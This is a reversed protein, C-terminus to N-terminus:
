IEGDLLWERFRGKLEAAMVWTPARPLSYYSSRGSKSGGDDEGEGDTSGLWRRRRRRGRRVARKARM